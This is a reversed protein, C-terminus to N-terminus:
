KAIDYFIVPWFLTKTYREFWYSQYRESLFAYIRKDGYGETDFGFIKECKKLWPFLSNYYNNMIEKSRCFFMNGRSISISKRTYKRFDERDKEDLLDIAKDLNGNGHWMDFHFRINRKSKFVALPNRILSWIGRKILKSLKLNNLYHHAGTITEFNKWEDPIETLVLDELRTTNTRIVTAVGEKNFKFNPDSSIDKIRSWYDRYACFGIWRNDDIKPLINKWFWYHFTYEGYYKNKFSINKLTNDRLWKESFNDNGLGVPEYGLKKMVPLVKNHICLCYITASRM